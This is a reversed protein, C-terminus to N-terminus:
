SVYTRVRFNAGVAQAVRRAKEIENEGIVDVVSLTVKIGQRVCDEAFRLMYSYGDKGYRSHVIADYADADAENLSISIEDVMGALEAAIDRGHYVSAHGNTNIRVHGGYSKVYQAIEKLTEIKM